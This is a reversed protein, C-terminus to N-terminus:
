DQCREGIQPILSYNLPDKYTSHLSEDALLDFDQGFYENFIVRFTNVPSISGYLTLEREGPFYYANLIAMRGEDGVFQRAGHDAQLIILPPTKSQELIADIIKQVRMNLYSIQNLYGPKFGPVSQLIEGNPGFVFPKHPSVIHAFVFKRSQNSPIKELTDLVLLIRERHLRDPFDLDPLFIDSLTPSVATLFSFATSRIYLVEFENLGQSARQWFSINGLSYYFDADELESWPFGTELAVVSYGEQELFKRVQSHKLFDHLGQKFKGVQIENIKSYSGVYFSDVYNMNLTSVLSFLTQAYNSQSCEAVYFGKEILWNLFPSNDYDFYELLYDDRSYADLIIYYIDPFNQGDENSQLRSDSEQLTANAEELEAARSQFDAINWVPVALAAIAMVTLTPALKEPRLFKRTIGWYGLLFLGIWIPGLVRHRFLSLGLFTTDRLLDYVQGYTFFLFLIITTLFASRPWDRLHIKSILFLTGAFFLSVALSRFSDPLKMESLNHAVLALGPYLSVLFPYLLSRKKSM